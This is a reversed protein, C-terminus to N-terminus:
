SRYKEVDAASITALHPNGGDAAFGVM